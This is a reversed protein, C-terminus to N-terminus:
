EGVIDVIESDLSVLNMNLTSGIALNAQQKELKTVSIMPETDYALNRLKPQSLLIYDSIIGGLFAMEGDSLIYKRANVNSKLMYGHRPCSYGAGNTVNMEVISEAQLKKLVDYVQVSIPGREDRRFNVQNDFFSEGTYKRAEVDILYILKHIQMKSLDHISQERAADLILVITKELKNMVGGCIDYILYNIYVIILSLRKKFGFFEKLLLPSATPIIVIM